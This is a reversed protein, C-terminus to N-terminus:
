SLQAIVPDVHANRRPFESRGLSRPHNEPKIQLCRWRRSMARWHSIPQREIGHMLPAPPLILGLLDISPNMSM